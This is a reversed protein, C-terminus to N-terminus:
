QNSNDKPKFSNWYDDNPEVIPDDPLIHMEILKDRAIAYDLSDEKANVAELLTNLQEQSIVAAARQNSRAILVTQNEDNVKDLYDKIHNRFDSQTTAIPMILVGKKERVKYQVINHVNNRSNVILM